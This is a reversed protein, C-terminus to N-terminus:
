WEAGPDIKLVESMEDILKQLDETHKGIRGGYVPKLSHLDPLTLETESFFAIIVKEWRERIAEEGEFIGEAILQEEFPSKEFIGLAYPLAFDLAVQLKERSEENASALKRVMSKGHMTHYVLESKIKGSIQSLEEFSSSLLSEFRVMEAFDFLLHRILSFQYEQNPLETFVSNKFETSKRFFAVKDPGEEGMRNLLNFFAYSHGIKDQAMSSFAIDEELLPGMGTWESNRHGLILQDDAMKYVFEKVAENNM